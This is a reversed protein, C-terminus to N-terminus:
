VAGRVEQLDLVVEDVEGGGVVEYREEGARGREDGRVEGAVVSGGAADAFDEDEAFAAVLAGGGDDGSVEHFDM